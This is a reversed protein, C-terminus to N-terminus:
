EQGLTIIQAGTRTIYEVWGKLDFVDTLKYSSNSFSLNIASLLKRKQKTKVYAHIHNRGNAIKTHVVYNIELDPEDTATFVYDMMLNIDKESLDCVPDITLAYYSNEKKRQRKFMPLMLHHIEWVGDIAKRVMYDNKDVDLKAIIARVNRATMNKLKCIENVQYYEKKEKM